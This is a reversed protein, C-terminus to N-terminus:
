TNFPNDIDFPLQTNSAKPTLDVDEFGNREFEPITSSTSPINSTSSGPRFDIGEFIQTRSWSNEPAEFIANSRAKNIISIRHTITTELKSIAQGNMPNLITIVDSEGFKNNLVKLYGDGTLDYYFETGNPLTEVRPLPLGNYMNRGNEMYIGRPVFVPINPPTPKFYDRVKNKYKSLKDFINKKFFENFSGSSDSDVSPTRNPGPGHIEPNFSPVSTTFPEEPPSEDGGRKWCCSISDWYIYVMVGIGLIVVGGILYYKYDNLWKRVEPNQIDGYKGKDPEIMPQKEPKSIPNNEIEGLVAKIISKIFDIIGSWIWLLFTKIKIAIWTIFNQTSEGSNEYVFAGIQSIGPIAYIWSFPNLDTFLVLILLNFALSTISLIKIISRMWQFLKMNKLTRLTEWIIWFSLHIKKINLKVFEFISIVWAIPTIM